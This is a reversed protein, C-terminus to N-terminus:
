LKDDFPLLLWTDHANRVLIDHALGSDITNAQGHADQGCWANRM